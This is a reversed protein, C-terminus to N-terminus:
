ETHSNITAARARGAAQGAVRPVRVSAPQPVLSSWDPTAGRAYGPATFSRLSLMGARVALRVAGHSREYLEPHAALFAAQEAEPVGAMGNVYHQGNREVHEIGLLAALALDQQMALGPQATLDEASLFYRRAHPNDSWRRCRALNILSKYLGKCSKSSVGAYGLERARPFADIAADSEDILFPCATVISAVTRELAHQRAIPQEMFVTAAALRRLRPEADIRGLLEAVAEPDAFQENGDLTVHYTPLRDLAAGVEVLRALDAGIDGSLKLKFWTPGYVALVEELSEPLGDDARRPHGGIADLLGVTHRLAVQERPVLGRVFAAGDFDALDGAVAGADFGILDTQIATAFSVGCAGCLADLLARDIEAPGFQAALAPLGNRVGAALCAAYHAAFHGFACRPTADSLYVQRALGLACRLQDVNDDNSLAPDKDFWKPVMLEATAGVSERGDPLRIRTRVFAQVAQNLTAAGFRFPLRLVVPREFYDIATVTFTPLGLM